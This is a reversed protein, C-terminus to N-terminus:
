SCLDILEKAMRKKNFKEETRKRGAKGMKKALDPDSFIRIIRDALESPIKEQDKPIIFGTENEVVSEVLGGSATVIAPVECALAEVPCLGFPEDGITTYISIDSLSTLNPVDSFGYNGIYINGKIGLKQVTEDV